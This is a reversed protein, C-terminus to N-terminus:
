GYNYDVRDITLHIGHFVVALRQRIM